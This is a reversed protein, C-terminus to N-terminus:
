QYLGKLREYETKMAMQVQRQFELRNDAIMVTTEFPKLISVHILNDWNELCPLWAAKPLCKGAGFIVIPTMPARATMAFMVPGSKFQDGVGETELRTGEAALIFSEGAQVRPVTSRYMSIVKIREGRAIPLAGSIRMAHSFLPIKFLEQKAGFRMHKKIAAHIALIDFHSSHNFIFITGGKPLNEQGHLVVRVGFFALCLKGWWQVFLDQWGIQRLMGTVIVLASTTATLVVAIGSALIARIILTLKILKM